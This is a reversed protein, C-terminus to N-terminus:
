AHDEFAAAAHLLAAEALPRGILQLGVPLAGPPVPAPLSIAPLGALSPAVTYADSRALALPDDRRAGLPFAVTPATPTAILDLTDLATRHEATLRRRLARARDLADRGATLLHTGLLIRRRVEPGFGAGRGAAVTAAYTPAAPPADVRRGYRVTDFRALNSAAEAAALARYAALAHPLTPLEIPVISAGLAALRDLAAAYAAAVPPSPEVPLPPRGVRLGDLRARPPLPTPDIPAGLATADRPDPGAIAAYLAACRRVDTALPGIQDLSSAHAVLGFRSIRGYTPKLGVVGCFAAPQRVSGGTDSGLAGLCHGAAVAAASGGSSGGASRTPDHPNRAPTPGHETSSGMGFADLNTKGLVIAGAALLRTVVTADYALAGDIPEALLRSGCTTPLARTMINDKIGIPIGALPGLTEGAARRADLGDARARAADPDLTIWAGHDDAAIRALHREVVARASPDRRDATARPKM